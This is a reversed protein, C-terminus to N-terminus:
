FTIKQFGQFPEVRLVMKLRTKKMLQGLVHVGCNPYQM